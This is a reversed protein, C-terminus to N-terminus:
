GHGYEKKIQMLIAEGDLGTLLTFYGSLFFRECDIRQVDANYSEPNKALVCLADRYDTAATKVIGEVLNYVGQRDPDKMWEEM